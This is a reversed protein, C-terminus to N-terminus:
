VKKKIKIIKYALYRIKFPFIITTAIKISTLLINVKMDIPLFLLLFLM